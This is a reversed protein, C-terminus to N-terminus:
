VEKVIPKNVLEYHENVLTCNVFTTGNIEEEGYCEHIHGFVHLKPKVEKVRERLDWCGINEGANYGLNPVDLVGQPPTHTILIDTDEPIKNWVKAIENGREKMFYWQGYSPSVPSGWINLGEIDIGYDQLYIFSQYEWAIDEYHEEIYRDHNGAIVIIYKYDLQKTWQVFDRLQEIGKYTSLDGAIILMDGEPLEIKNFYNHPDAICVVRM